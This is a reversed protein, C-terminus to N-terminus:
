GLHLTRRLSRHEKLVTVFAHVSPFQDMAIQNLVIETGAANGQGKVQVSSVPKQDESHALAAASLLSCCLLRTKM